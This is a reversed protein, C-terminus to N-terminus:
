SWIIIYLHLLKLLIINADFCACVGIPSFLSGLILGCRWSWKIKLMTALLVYNPFPGNRLYITHFCNFVWMCFFSILNMDYVIIFEFYILNKFTLGSVTLLFCSPFSWSMPRCSPKQNHGWFCLFCFGRGLLTMLLTFIVTWFPCYYM